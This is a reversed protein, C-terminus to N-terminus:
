QISHCKYGPLYEAILPMCIRVDEQMKEFPREGSFRQMFLNWATILRCDPPAKEITRKLSTVTRMGQQYASSSICLNAIASIHSESKVLASSIADAQEVEGIDDFLQAMLNDIQNKEM